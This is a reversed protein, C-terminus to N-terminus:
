VDHGPWASRWMLLSLSEIHPLLRILRGVLAENTCSNNADTMASINSIHLEKVIVRMAPPMAEVIALVSQM